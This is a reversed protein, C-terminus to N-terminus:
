VEGAHGQNECMEKMPAHPASLNNAGACAM